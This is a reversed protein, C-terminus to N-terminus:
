AGLGAVDLFRNVVLHASDHPGPSAEPHFQVAAVRLGEHKFGALTQDNLNIHTPVGGAAEIGATDVCFGHNQSTIEVRGTELDRVPHNAGRHGFGLKYTTAGLARGLLQHGLCIGVIPKTGVVKKVEEVMADLAAPDGPGNSLFVFDNGDMWDEATSDWPFVEVRLGSEKLLRLINTKVGGDVVAVSGRSPTPDAYVYRAATSVVKALGRGSMGPWAELQRVLAERSTGDTSIAAKMAGKDRIHRVLARTDIGQIGPVGAERLYRDLGETARHNSYRRSLERVIFGNVWVKASEPDDANVGYNGVHPVTMTVIQECYSPDTLVEQYGTMATNFVVEGVRTTSAGFSEGAFSRGDELLLIGGM